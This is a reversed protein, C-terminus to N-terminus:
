DLRSRLGAPTAGLVRKVVRSFYAPDDYGLDAGIQKISLTSFLLQRRAELAIRGEIVALASTGLVQRCVRNLHTPSIAMRAAYDAIRRSQRFNQDVLTRYANAHLRARVAGESRAVPLGRARKLAVLLLTIHANMAITHWGGPRDAEVLLNHLVGDIAAADFDIVGASPPAIGEALDREMMTIVVGEVDASFVYGHVTQAPVVVVAPPELDFGAGDLTVHGRGATLSVIQFFREHRHPAIRYDHLRSRSQITEWHLWDQRAAGDLEGYLAYTPVRNMYPYHLCRGRIDVPCSRRELIGHAGVDVEARCTRM